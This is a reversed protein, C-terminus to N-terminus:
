INLLAEQIRELGKRLKEEGLSYSIRIYGPMGFATGPVTAVLAEHILYKCLEIDDKLSSQEIIQSFDPFIYFSGDPKKCHVGPMATLIEHAINCNKEFTKCLTNEFDHDHTLAALAAHQSVTTTNSTSHSQLMKMTKILQENGAAYGIRWGTMAYSKSVGNVVVTQDYLDPCVNLINYFEKGDFLIHEYIDDSVILIEPHQLFVEALARLEAESYILGTPNNPSNLIFARTKPTIAKSLMEADIKLTEHNGVAVAKGEAAAVMEPYSVWYPVPIIVEDGADLISQFVNYLSHKAGCSVLIQNPEYHLKNEEKFKACVAERLSLIGAVDTYRTQGKNIAEIAATCIFDPTNFHPEGASFNIINKGQKSLKNALASISMTQSSAIGQVRRSLHVPKSM